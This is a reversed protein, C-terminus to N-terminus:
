AAVPLVDLAGAACQPLYLALDPVNAPHTLFAAPPPSHKRKCRARAAWLCAGFAEKRAEKRSRAASFYGNYLRRWRRYTDRYEQEVAAWDVVVILGDTTPGIYHALGPHWVLMRRRAM